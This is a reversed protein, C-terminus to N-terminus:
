DSRMSLDGIQYQAESGGKLEMRLQGTRDVGLNKGTISEGGPLSLRVMEGVYALRQSYNVLFEPRGVSPRLFILADLIERLIPLQHVSLSSHQQVCTAPFLVDADNPVSVSHLNIGMGLVLGQLRDQEWSAEALVGATKRGDLLVDNPWKVQIASSCTKELVHCISLAGLFSFLGLEQMESVSPHLIVSFALSAGPTTLWTRGMRGRGATQSEAVFLSYEPVTRTNLMSLGRENTSDTKKYYFIKPIPLGNLTQRLAHEDMPIM